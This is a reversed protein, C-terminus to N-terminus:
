FVNEFAASIFYDIHYICTENFISIRCKNFDWDLSFGIFPSIYVISFSFQCYLKLQNWCRGIAKSQSYKMFAKVKQDLTLVFNCVETHLITCLYLYFPHNLHTFFRLWVELKWLSFNGCSIMKIARTQFIESLSCSETKWSWHKLSLVRSRVSNTILQVKAGMFLKRRTTGPRLSGAQARIGAALCCSFFYFIFFLYCCRSCFTERGQFSSKGPRAYHQQFAGFLFTM